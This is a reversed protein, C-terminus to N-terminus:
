GNWKVVKFGPSRAGAEAAKFRQYQSQWYNIADRVDPWDARTLQRDGISATEAITLRQEANLWLQLRALCDGSSSIGTTAPTFAM